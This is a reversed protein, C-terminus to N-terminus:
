FYFIFKSTVTYSFNVHDCFLKKVHRLILQKRTQTVGFSIYLVSFRPTPSLTKFHKKVLFEHQIKVSDNRCWDNFTVDIKSLFKKDFINKKTYFKAM